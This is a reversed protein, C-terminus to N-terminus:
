AEPESLRRLEAALDAFVADWDGITPQRFLRVTPYWPSDPRDRLWRWDCNYALAVWAPVGLAGALHIVATDIGVVLDLNAFLGATDAMDGAIEAGLDLVPFPADKLQETGHGKQVSCLTVGPVAALPAFRALPVSRWRDGLHEPNGQWVIGVKFGPVTRLRDKWKMAADAPPTLYPVRGPLTALTTKLGMPVSMVPCHCDVRVTANMKTVVESVGPATEAIRGLAEPLHVVVRAGLKALPEAFRLFQLCDGLGQEATLLLTKGALPQGPWRPVPYERQKGKLQDTQLRAEYEPWGREYDGVSLYAISRNFRVDTNDPRLALSHDYFHLAEAHRGVTALTLAFNGAADPDDPNLELARRLATEAEPYKGQDRFCNGLNAWGAAHTDNLRVAERAARECDAWRKLKGFVAALNAHMEGSTPDLAVAKEMPEVAAEHDGNMSRSIGLATWTLPQQPFRETLQAALKEADAHKKQDNLATVLALAADPSDPQRKVAEQLALEVAPWNKLDRYAQALNQWTPVSEPNLRLAVRFTVAAEAFRGQRALAVALHEHWLAVEPKARIAALLAAEADPLRNAALHKLGEVHAAVPDAPAPGATRAALRLLEGAAAPSGARFADEAFRHLLDHPTM